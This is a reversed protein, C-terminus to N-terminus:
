RGYLDRTGEILGELNESVQESTLACKAIERLQLTLLNMKDNVLENSIPQQTFLIKRATEKYFPDCEHTCKSCREIGSGSM